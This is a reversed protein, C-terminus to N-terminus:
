TKRVLRFANELDFIRRFTCEVSNALFRQTNGKFSEAREQTDMMIDIEDFLKAEDDSDIQFLSSLHDLANENSGVQCSDLDQILLSTSDYLQSIRKSKSPLASLYPIFTNSFGILVNKISSIQSLIRDAADDLKVKTESIKASLKASTEFKRLLEEESIWVTCRKNYGNALLQNVKARVDDLSISEM